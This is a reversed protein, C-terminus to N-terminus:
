QDQREYKQQFKRYLVDQKNTLNVDRGDIFARSVNSSRMDFIDGDVVILTASKGKELSGFRDAIGMIRAPTLTVSQVAKEYDLGYSIATGAQFPLNRQRWDGGMSLAFAVGAEDLMAPTKFPQDIDADTHGPLSHTEELIVAVENEKLFDTILYSDRGGVIIPKLGFRRALLVAQQIDKAFNAHIYLNREGNLAPCMAGFRLNTNNEPAQRCYAQAQQLFQEFEDLEKQFNDNQSLQGTQWNYRYRRPWYLHMGDDTRVAADEWNWGDLQVISSHGAVLGGDPTAQALLVGRSRITPLIQSDTNFAIISRVNPNYDGVEEADRTARVAGIEVLGLQTNPAILGPYVHKGAADIVQHGSVDTGAAGVSTIKGDAFTIVANEIVQGNGLHATAGTIAIPQSQEAAPVPNQALLGTSCLALCTLCIIYRLM